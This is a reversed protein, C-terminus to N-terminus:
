SVKKGFVRQVKCGIWENGTTLYSNEPEVLEFSAKVKAKLEKESEVRDDLAGCLRWLESPTSFVKWKYRYQSPRSQFLRGLVSDSDKGSSPPVPGKLEGKLERIQVFLRKEEANFRWYLNKNRDQGLPLCRVFYDEMAKEYKVAQKNDKARTEVEYLAQYAQKLTVTCFRKGDEDRGKLGAREAAKIATRLDRESGSATANRLRTEAIDLTSNYHLKDARIRKRDIAKSRAASKGKRKGGEVSSAEDEDEDENDSVEEREFDDVVTDLGYNELLILDEIMAALQESTPDFEDKASAKGKKAVKEKSKGATKTKKSSANAAAKNMKRCAQVAAERKTSAVEKQKAKLEKMSRNM